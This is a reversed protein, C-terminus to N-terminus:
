SQFDVLGDGGRDNKKFFFVEKKKLLGHIVISPM